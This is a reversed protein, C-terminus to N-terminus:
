AKAKLEAVDAKLAEIILQQEQIAKVMVSCLADLRLSQIQNEADKKGDVASPIIEQLEHAIFGERPVGDGKFIEGYDTFEFRVPRIQSIRALAPVDQTEVNKKLRYDSVVTISGTDSTDVWLRTASGNWQFNINQTQYVGASGSHSRIGKVNIADSFTAAGTGSAGNTPVTTTGVLLNGNSDLTMAQTFTIPNGATGSSAINWFFGSGTQSFDTAISNTLYRFTGGADYYHNNGIRSQGGVGWFSGTTGLQFAKAGSNWGSPTIGVGVNGSSDIRMSETNGIGGRYFALGDSAGVSIRGLGTTYDVVTGDTYSGTYTTQAYLGGSANVGITGDLVLSM